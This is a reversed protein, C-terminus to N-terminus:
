KEASRKSEKRNERLGEKFGQDYGHKLGLDYWYQRIRNLRLYSILNFKNFINIDM